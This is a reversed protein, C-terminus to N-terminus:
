INFMVKLEVYALSIFLVNMCLSCFHAKEVAADRKFVHFCDFVITWM